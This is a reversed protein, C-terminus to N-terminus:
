SSKFYAPQHKVVNQLKDDIWVGLPHLLSGSYSVIPRTALPKKHLKITAYFTSFPDECEKYKAEFFKQENKTLHEKHEWFWDKYLSKLTNMKREAQHKTM